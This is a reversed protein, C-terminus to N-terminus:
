DGVGESKGGEHEGGGEVGTGGEVGVHLVGGGRLRGEREADRARAAQCGHAHPAQQKTGSTTSARPSLPLLIADTPPRELVLCHLQALQVPSPFPYSTVQPM